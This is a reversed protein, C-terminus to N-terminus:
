GPCACAPRFLGDLAGGPAKQAVDEAAEQEDPHHVAEEAAGGDSVAGHGQQGKEAAHHCLDPIQAKGEDLPFKPDLVVPM